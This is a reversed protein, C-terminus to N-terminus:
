RTQELAELARYLSSVVFFQFSYRGITLIGEDELESPAGPDLRLLNILTGNTSGLDTVLLTGSEDLQLECHEDSVSVDPVTLDCDVKRGVILRTPTSSPLFFTCGALPHDRMAHGLREGSGMSLTNDLEIKPVELTKSARLGQQQEPSRASEHAAVMGVAMLFVGPYEELFQDQGFSMSSRAQEMMVLRLAV